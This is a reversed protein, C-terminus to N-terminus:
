PGTGPGGMIPIAGSSMPPANSVTGGVWSSAPAFLPMSPLVPLLQGSYSSAVGGAGGSISGGDTLSPVAGAPNWTAWDIVDAKAMGSGAIVALAFAATAIASRRM